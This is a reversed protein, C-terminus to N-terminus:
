CSQPINISDMNGYIAAGHIRHTTSIKLIRMVLPKVCIDSQVNQVDGLEQPFFLYNHISIRWYLSYVVADVADVPIGQSLSVYSNFIAM